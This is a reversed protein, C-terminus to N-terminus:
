KSVSVSTDTWQVFCYRYKLLLHHQSHYEMWDIFLILLRTSTPWIDQLAWKHNIQWCCFYIVLIACVCCSRPQRRWIYCLIRQQCWNLMCLSIRKCGFINRAHTQRHLAWTGCFVCKKRERERTCFANTFNTWAFVHVIKRRRVDIRDDFVIFQFDNPVDCLWRCFKWHLPNGNVWKIDPLSYLSMVHMNCIEGVVYKNVSNKRKRTTNATSLAPISFFGVSVHPPWYLFMVSTCIGNFM